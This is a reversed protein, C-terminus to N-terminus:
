EGNSLLAPAAGSVEAWEEIVSSLLRNPNTAIPATLELARLWSKAHSAAGSTTAPLTDCQTLGMSLVKSVAPPMLCNYRCGGHASHRYYKQVQGGVPIRCC